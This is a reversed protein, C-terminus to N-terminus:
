SGRRMARSTAAPDEWPHADSVLRDKFHAYHPALSLTDAVREELVAIREGYSFRASHPIQAADFYSELKCDTLGYSENFFREFRPQYGSGDGHRWKVRLDTESNDIRSALPFIVLPRMDSATLRYGIAQKALDLVGDLSQRNPTFVVVLKQPMLMTCIGSIDTLGTRSDILVYDYRASVYGAFADFLGPARYFLLEWPVTNM